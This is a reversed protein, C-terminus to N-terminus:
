AEEKQHRPPAPPTLPDLGHAAAANLHAARPRTRVLLHRPYQRSM